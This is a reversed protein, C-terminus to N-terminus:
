PQLGIRRLLEVFRADSRLPDLHPDVKVFSLYFDHTQYAKQLCDFAEDKEGLAAYVGSLFVWDSDGADSRLGKVIQRAKETEGKVAYLHALGVSPVGGFAASFQEFENLAEAYSGKGEYCLALYLRAYVRSPDLELTKKLEPIAEDYRRAYYLFRGVSSRMLLSLPDLERARRIEALAEDHRGLNSLLEAYRLHATAYSPNLALATKYEREAGAWDWQYHHEPYAFATHAEPSDPDLELAKRAPVEALPFAERPSLVFYNALLSYSDALGAYAPAYTPDIAIARQFAPLGKKIGDASQTTLSYRGMLYADYAAANVAKHRELRQQESSTLRIRVQRAIELAVSDQVSLLDDLDRQYSDAWLHRDNSAQILQATIRVRNGSRVVSGEVLADVNLERAIEPLTRRTGKYHMISTRSTVQLASIKGLDTILEDTMGDAFYDQSPDGSLNDLPLVALSHIQARSVQPTQFRTRRWTFLGVAICAVLIAVLRLWTKGQIGRNVSKSQPEPVVGKFATSGLARETPGIPSHVPGEQAGEGASPQRPPGAELLRRGLLGPSAGIEEVPAVFRYGRRPLTEIYRPTGAEDGLTTRIKNVAFNLGQEFDVFTERGWIQRQIEERTVLQGPHTALLVLIKFPQPPLNLLVGGKRLEGSRLDLEFAGFRLLAEDTTSESLFVGASSPFSKQCGIIRQRRTLLTAPAGSDERRGEEDKSGRFSAGPLARLDQM